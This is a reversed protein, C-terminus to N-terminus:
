TGDTKEGKRQPSSLRNVEKRLVESESLGELLYNLTTLAPASQSVGMITSVHERFGEPAPQDSNKVPNSTNSDKNFNPLFKKLRELIGPGTENGGSIIMWLAIVAGGYLLYTKTQALDITLALTLISM